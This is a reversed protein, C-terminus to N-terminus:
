FNEPRVLFGPHSLSGFHDFHVSERSQDLLKKSLYM